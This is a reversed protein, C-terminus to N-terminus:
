YSLRGSYEFNPKRVYKECDSIVRSRELNIKEPDTGIKMAIDRLLSDYERTRIIEKVRPYYGSTWGSSGPHDFEVVKYDLDDMTIIKDVPFELIERRTRRKKYERSMKIRKKRKLNRTDRIGFARLPFKETLSHLEDDALHALPIAGGKKLNYITVQRAASYYANFLREVSHGGVVEDLSALPAKECVEDQKELFFNIFCNRLVRKSDDIKSSGPFYFALDTDLDKDVIGLIDFLPLGGVLSIIYYGPNWKKIEDRAEIIGNIFSDLEENTYKSKVDSFIEMRVSAGFAGVM